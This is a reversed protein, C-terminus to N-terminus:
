EPNPLHPNMFMVAWMGNTMPIPRDIVTYKLVNKMTKALERAGGETMAVFIWIPNDKDNEFPALTPSVNIM